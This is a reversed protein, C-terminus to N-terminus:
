WELSSYRTFLPRFDLTIDGKFDVILLCRISNVEDNTAIFFYNECDNSSAPQTLLCISWDGQVLTKQSQNHINSKVSAYEDLADLELCFVDCIKGYFLNDKPWNDVHYFGTVNCKDVFNFEAIKHQFFKGGNYELHEQNDYIELGEHEVGDFFIFAVFPHIVLWFTLFLVIVIAVSIVIRHVTKRTIHKLM